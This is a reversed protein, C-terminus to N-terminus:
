AEPILHFHRPYVHLSAAQWIIEGAKVGLDEALNEQVHVQWAYDNRYGFVVDNSRMQVVAYLANDRIFYNVANTCVFDTKGDECYDTHMSPRTYIAVARRGHPHDHLQGLVHDYQAGNESSYLLFGYNSNIVGDEGAVSKWIAPPEPQLDQVFLSQSEYWDIEAKIYDENPEGFISPDSAWFSTGILELMGDHTNGEPYLQKLGIFRDRIFTITNTM